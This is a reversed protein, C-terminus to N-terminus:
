IISCNVKDYEAYTGIFRVTMFGAVFVVAVVLRYKNGRINFVYRSNGVYDATPFQQKLDSHGKWESEEVLEVWKNFAEKSDAHKRIYADILEKKLIKM